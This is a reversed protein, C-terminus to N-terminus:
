MREKALQYIKKWENDAPLVDWAVEEYLDSGSEVMQRLTIGRDDENAFNRMLNIAEKLSQEGYYGELGTALDVANDAVMELERNTLSM